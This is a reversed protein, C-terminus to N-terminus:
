GVEVWNLLVEPNEFIEDLFLPVLNFVKDGPLEFHEQLPAYVHNSITSIHGLTVEMM